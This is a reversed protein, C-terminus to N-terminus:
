DASVFKYQKNDSSSCIYYDTGYLNDCIDKLACGRCPTYADDTAVVKVKRGFLWIVNDKSM